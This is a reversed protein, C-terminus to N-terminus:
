LKKGQESQKEHQVMQFYTGNMALLQQHTGIEVVRGKEIVAIRDATMASSMRHTVM